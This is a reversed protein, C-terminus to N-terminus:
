EVALSRGYSQLDKLLHKASTALGASASLESIKGFYEDLRNKSLQRKKYKAWWAKEEANLSNPFNRAKYLPLLLNLREDAFDLGLDALGQEDAARVVRMQTRDSDSVFKDYLAGDVRMEDIGMEVQRAKDILEMARVMRDGLDEQKQLKKFHNEIIEMHLGLRKQSDKDLVRLDAVVAPCKNFNLQKIPFYPVDPGRDQWREALQDPTADKLEDPDIRLDYVFAAGRDPHAAISVAITTKEWESPYRGSTYIFPKGSAVIPAVRNKGRRALLYDFLKPQKAKILQALEILAQVDSLADHANTHGLKNVSALLELKNSPKGDPAFPWKIGDPRLARTMRVVDLLDWTSCGNKWTWEYADHFNRWFLFRIFENDFRINNYGVAITDPTFVQNTLYKALEAESIGEAKAKQPTIGHVLVAEPQPLIDESLKVLINDPKGIPKLELDTRQGAFQMIRDERARFGSTELDFFYFTM